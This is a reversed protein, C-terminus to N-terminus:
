GPLRCGEYAVSARLLRFTQKILVLNEPNDRLTELFETVPKRFPVVDRLESLIHFVQNRLNVSGPRNILRKLVDTIFDPGMRIIGESALWRIGSNKDELMELLVIAADHENMAGLIRVAEWRWLNNDSETLPKLYDIAPRGIDTLLYVAKARAVPDSGTLDAIIDNINM